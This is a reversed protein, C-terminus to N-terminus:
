LSSMDPDPGYENAGSQGEVFGLWIGYFPILQWLGNHGLDHCRRTNTAIWIWVMVIALVIVGFCVALNEYAEDPILESMRSLIAIPLNVAWFESRQARGKFSFISM